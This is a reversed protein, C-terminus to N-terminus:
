QYSAPTFSVPAFALPSAGLVIGGDPDLRMEKACALGGRTMFRLEFTQSAGGALTLPDAARRTITRLASGDPALLRFNDRHVTAPAPAGNRVQVEVNAEVLDSGYRDPEQTASCSQRLVAVQIGKESSSPGANKAPPTLPMCAGSAAVLTATLVLRSTLARSM